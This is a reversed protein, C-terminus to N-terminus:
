TSIVSFLPMYSPFICQYQDLLQWCVKDAVDQASTALILKEVLTFDQSIFKEEAELPGFIRGNAIIARQGPSLGLVRGNFVQHAELFSVDDSNFLKNFKGM